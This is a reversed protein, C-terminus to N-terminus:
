LTCKIRAWENCSVSDMVRTWCVHCVQKRPGPREHSEVLMGCRVCPRRLAPCVHQRTLLHERLVYQRCTTCHAHYSPAHTLRWANKAGKGALVLAVTKTAIRLEKCLIGIHFFTHDHVFHMLIDGTMIDFFLLGARNRKTAAELAGPQTCVICFRTSGTRKLQKAMFRATPLIEDCGAGLGSVGATVPVAVRCRPTRAANRVSQLPWRRLLQIGVREGSRGSGVVDNV